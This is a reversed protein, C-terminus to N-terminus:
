KLSGAPYLGKIIDLADNLSAQNEQTGKLNNADGTEDLMGAIQEVNKVQSALTKQKDASLAQSQAPLTKVIDRVKFAAEHVTKLNKSKVVKDLAANAATVKNWTATAGTFSATSAAAGSSGTSSTGSTSNSMASNSTAADPTSTSTTTTSTSTPAGETSANDTSTNGGGCGTLAIGLLAASVGYLAKNQMKHTM